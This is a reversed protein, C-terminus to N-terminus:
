VRFPFAPHNSHAPFVFGMLEHSVPGSRHEMAEVEKPKKSAQSFRSQDTRSDGRPTSTGQSLPNETLSRWGASSTSNRSISKGGSTRSRSEAQKPEAPSRTVRQRGKSLQASSKFFFRSSIGILAIKQTNKRGTWLLFFGKLRHTRRCLPARWSSSPSIFCQLNEQLCHSWPHTM